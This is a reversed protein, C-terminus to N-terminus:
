KKYYKKTNGSKRIVVAAKIDKSFKDKNIAPDLKNYEDFLDQLLEGDTNSEKTNSFEFPTPIYNEM